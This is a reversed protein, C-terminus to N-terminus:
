RENGNESGKVIQTLWDGDHFFGRLAVTILASRSLGHGFKKKYAVRGKNLM